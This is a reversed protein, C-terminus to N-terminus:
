RGRAIKEKLRRWASRVDPRAATDELKLDGELWRDLIVPPTGPAPRLARGFRQEYVPQGPLFAAPPAPPLTRDLREVDLECETALEALKLARSYHMAVPVGPGEEWHKIADRLFRAGPETHAVLTRCNEDANAYFTLDAM